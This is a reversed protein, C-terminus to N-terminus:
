QYYMISESVEEIFPFRKKLRSADAAGKKMWGTGRGLGHERCYDVAEYYWCVIGVEDPYQKSFAQLKKMWAEIFSVDNASEVCRIQTCLLRSHAEAFDKQLDESVHTHLRELERQSADLAGLDDKSFKVVRSMARVLGLLATEDRTLCVVHSLEAVHISAKLTEQTFDLNMYVAQAFYGALVEADKRRILLSYLSTVVADAADALAEMCEEPNETKIRGGKLFWIVYKEEVEDVLLSYRYCIDGLLRCESSMYKRVFTRKADFFRPDDAPISEACVIATEIMEKDLFRTEWRIVQEAYAEFDPASEGTRIGDLWEYFLSYRVNWRGLLSKKELEANLMEALEASSTPVENKQLFELHECANRLQQPTVAMEQPYADDASPPDAKLFNLHAAIANMLSNLVSSVKRANEPPFDAQIITELQSFLEAEDIRFKEDAAADERRLADLAALVNQKKQSMKEM